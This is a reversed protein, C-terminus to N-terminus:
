LVSALYGPLLEKFQNPPEYGSLHIAVHELNHRKGWVCVVCPPLSPPLYPPPAPVPPKWVLDARLFSLYTGSRRMWGALSLNCICVYAM